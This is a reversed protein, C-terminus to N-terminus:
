IKRQAKLMAFFEETPELNKNNKLKITQTNM